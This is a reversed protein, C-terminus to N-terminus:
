KLVAAEFDTAANGSVNFEHKGKQVKMQITDKKGQVIVQSGKNIKYNFLCKVNYGTETKEPEQLLGSSYNLLIGGKVANPSQLYVQNATIFLDSNSDKALRTLAQRLDGAVFSGYLYETEPKIEGATLGAMGLLDKIIFSTTQNSYTRNAPFGILKSVNGAIKLELIRDVGSRYSKFDFIEGATVVGYNNKYGAELTATKFTKTKGIVNPRCLEITEDNANYLKVTCTDSVTSLNFETSFEIQFKSGADLDYSFIKGELNLYCVRNYLEKNDAM